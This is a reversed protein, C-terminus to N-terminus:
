FSGVWQLLCKGWFSLRRGYWRGVFPVLVVGFLFKLQQVIEELEADLDYDYSIDSSLSDLDSDCEGDSSTYDLDSDPSHTGDGAHDVVRSHRSRRPVQSQLAQYVSEPLYQPESPITSM